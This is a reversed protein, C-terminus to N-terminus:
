RSPSVSGSHALSITSLIANLGAQLCLTSRHRGYRIQGRQDGRIGSAATLGRNALYQVPLNFVSSSRAPVVQTEESLASSAFRLTNMRNLPESVASLMSIAYRPSLVSPRFRQSLSSVGFSVNTFNWRSSTADHWTSQRGSIRNRDQIRVQFEVNM